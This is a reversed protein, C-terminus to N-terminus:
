LSDYCLEELLVVGEGVLGYRHVLHEFLHTCPGNRNLGRCVCVCVCVCDPLHSLLLCLGGLMICSSRLETGPDVYSFSVVLKWLPGRVEGYMCPM